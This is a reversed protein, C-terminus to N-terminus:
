CFSISGLLVSIFGLLVYDEGARPCIYPQRSARIHRDPRPLSKQFEATSTPLLTMLRRTPQTSYTAASELQKRPSPPLFSSQVETRNRCSKARPLLPFHLPTWIPRRRTAKQPPNEGQDEIQDGMRPNSLAPILITFIFSQSAALLALPQIHCFQVRFLLAFGDQEKINPHSAPSILCWRLVPSHNPKSVRHVAPARVPTVVDADLWSREAHLTADQCTQKRRSRQV